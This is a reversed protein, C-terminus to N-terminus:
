VRMLKLWEMWVYNRWDCIASIQSNYRWTYSQLSYISHLMDSLLFEWYPAFIKKEFVCSLQTDNNNLIFFPYFGKCYGVHVELVSLNRFMCVVFNFCMSRACGRIGVFWGEFPALALLHTIGRAGALDWFHLEEVALM